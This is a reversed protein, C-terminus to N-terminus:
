GGFREQAHKRWKDSVPHINGGLISACVEDPLLVEHVYDAPLAYNPRQDPRGDRQWQILLPRQGSLWVGAVQELNFFLSRVDWVQKSPDASSRTFVLGLERLHTLCQVQEATAKYAGNQVMLQVLTMAEADSIFQGDSCLYHYFRLFLMPISAMGLDYAPDGLYVEIPLNRDRLHSPRSPNTM